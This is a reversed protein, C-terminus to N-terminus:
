SRFGILDYFSYVVKFFYKPGQQAFVFHPM